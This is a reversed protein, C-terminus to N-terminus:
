DLSYQLQTLVNCVTIACKKPGKGFLLVELITYFNSLGPPYHMNFVFFSALLTAVANSNKVELISTKEAMLYCKKPASLKGQVVLLPQPQHLDM